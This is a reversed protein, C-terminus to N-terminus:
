KKYLEVFINNHDSSNGVISLIRYYCQDKAIGLSACQQDAAQAIKTEGVSPVGLQTLSMSAVKTYNSTDMRNIQTAAFAPAVLLTCLAIVSKLPKM